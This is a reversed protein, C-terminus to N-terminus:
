ALGNAGKAGFLLGAIGGIGGVDGLGGNGNGGAGGHGILRANGGNGGASGDIFGFAETRENGATENECSTWRPTSDHPRPTSRRACADAISISSM